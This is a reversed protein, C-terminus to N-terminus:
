LFSLTLTLYFSRGPSYIPRAEVSRVSRALHEYYAEDFLNQVGGTASFVDNILWSIKADVVSFAPTENEGYSTAIRDQKMAHRFLLEPKVAGNAFDGMLRYHFEMPPIEPLPEDLEQDQGRTYVLGLDHSLFSSFQQTWNVEFGTMLAKKINVFQRVGPSTMMAPTLDERIESSIYDRLVSTFLNVNINTHETQYRFVLDLQNNTEPDLDPNGLMEYPDLGIPFQNIYREAIGPSRTAMGMWLGLSINENFLRTGGVSLSPHVHSTELDSYISEFRPDPNNAKASNIDLRASVVFQFGPQAIHWEGFLGTRKIEADQWVNDTLVNGAMPGMLMTRERYGDASEFRYDAGAFVYSKDFDFRMESRGGYNRTKADTIADVLRPEIVKDYNDMLHDVMTGYVSTNWATLVKDYFVASHSANILWTNDKRLDMPLAPFDVDKAINNSVLVGINQTQSLKVGLKGGWNLRNFRAAIDVGEGDTYDDGTSYAGFMRFDVKSGSVGAVGETRFINGNSEYSTGLRGVPTSKEKFEPSTSKFNITGGFVNGYRLSHPGKLVEAESIMNIPIQSAAPDMRNPCAASATQSGDLVLNIQDYKFGRLVPDFGYAGSKRITSIASVSELLNGADHALKNQMTFKLKRKDGVTPHVLVVTAPLYTSSQNLEITGQEAFTEVEDASFAVKGYQLHSLFLQTGETLTLVINGAKDSFGRNNDYQYHVDPIEAGTKKDTIKITKEQSYATHVLLLLVLVYVMKIGSNYLIKRM